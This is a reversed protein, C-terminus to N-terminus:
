CLNDTQGPRRRCGGADRQAVNGSSSSVQDRAGTPPMPGASVPRSGPGAKVGSSAKPGDMGGGSILVAKMKDAQSVMAAPAPASYQQLRVDRRQFSEGAPLAMQYAIGPEQAMYQTERMSNGRMPAVASLPVSSERKVLHEASISYAGRMRRASALIM